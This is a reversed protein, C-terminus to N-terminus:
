TRQQIKKVQKLNINNLFTQIKFFSKVRPGITNKGEKEVKQRIQEIATHVNLYVIMPTESSVYAVECEGTIQTFLIFM